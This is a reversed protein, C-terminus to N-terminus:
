HVQGDSPEPRPLIDISLPRTFDHVVTAKM